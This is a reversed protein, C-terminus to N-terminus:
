EVDFNRTCQYCKFSYFQFVTFHHLQNFHKFSNFCITKPIMSHSNKKEVDNVPLRWLQYGKYVNSNQSNQNFHMSNRM